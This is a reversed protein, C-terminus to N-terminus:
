VVMQLLPSVGKLENDGSSQIVSSALRCPRHTKFLRRHRKAEGNLDFDYHDDILSGICTGSIAFGTESVIATVSWQGVADKLSCNSIM